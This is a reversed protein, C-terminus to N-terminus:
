ARPRNEFNFVRLSLRASRYGVVELTESDLAALDGDPGLESAAVQRTKPTLRILATTM